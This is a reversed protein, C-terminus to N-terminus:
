KGQEKIASQKDRISQLHKGSGHCATCPGTEGVVHSPGCDNGTGGCDPCGATKQSIRWCNGCLYGYDSRAKGCAACKGRNLRSEETQWIDRKKAM